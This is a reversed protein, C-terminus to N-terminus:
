MMVHPQVDDRPRPLPPPEVPPPPPTAPPATPGPVLLKRLEEMQENSRRVWDNQVGVRAAMLVNKEHVSIAKQLLTRVQKKLEELYVERAEGSLEPPVPAGVLDDYFERYLSAIQFGAATAWDPNRVKMADVYRAQAQLLMRAKAELDREMQKEPLRVPLLRYQEHAIEGVYFAAMGVFYDTDLREETEHARVFALVDRLTREAAGLDKLNFQAVGRRSMAEARDSNTLDKRELVQAYDEAAAAWNKQAEYVAGLRFAADLLDSTPAGRAILRRYREAAGAPDNKAELALGANYLAPTVYRSDPFREVLQDYLAAADAFLKEGFAAGGREFLGAADVIEVAGSKQAEFVLPEMTVRQERPLATHACGALAAWFLVRVKV